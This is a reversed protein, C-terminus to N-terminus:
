TACAAYVRRRRGEARRMRRRNQQVRLADYLRARRAMAQPSQPGDGAAVAPKVAGGADLGREVMPHMAFYRQVVFLKGGPFGLPSTSPFPHFSTIVFRSPRPDALGVPVLRM